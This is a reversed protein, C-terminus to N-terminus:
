CRAILTVFAQASNDERYQWLQAAELLHWDRFARLLESFSWRYLTDEHAPEHNERAFASFGFTGGPATAAQLARLVAPADAGLFQLANVCLVVDYRQPPTWARLDAHVIQASLGRASLLRRSKDAGELTFEVGTCDYGREALFALDQGEGCGADLATAGSSFAHYRLARRAVPGPEHGYYFADGAFTQRWRQLELDSM